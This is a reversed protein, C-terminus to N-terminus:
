LGQQFALAAKYERHATGINQEYMALSAALNKQSLGKNGEQHYTQALLFLTRAKARTPVTWVQQQLALTEELITKAKQPQSSALYFQGLVQKALTHIEVYSAGAKSIEVLEQEQDPKPGQGLAVRIQRLRLLMAEMSKEGHLKHEIEYAKKWTQRAENVQGADEQLIGLRHYLPVFSEKSNLAQKEQWRILDKMAELSSYTEGRSGRLMIELMKPQFAANRIRAEHDLLTYAFQYAGVAQDYRGTNEYIRGLYTKSSAVVRKTNMDKPPLGPELQLIRNFISEAEAYQGALIKLAGLNHLFVAYSMANSLAEPRKQALKDYIAIAKELAGQKVLIIAIRAPLDYECPIDVLKYTHCAAYAEQFLTLAKEKEGWNDYLMGFVHSMEAYARPNKKKNNIIDKAGQQIVTKFRLSDVSQGTIEASGNLLLGTMFKIVAKNKEEEIEAKENALGIQYNKWLVVGMVLVCGLVIAAIGGVFGKNRQVFKRVLYRKSPPQAIIPKQELYRTLDDGVEAVSRYRHKPEKALTKLLISDLDGKLTRYLGEPSTKRAQAVGLVESSVPRSIRESPTKIPDATIRREITALSLDSTIQYPLQGVLVEHMLVGFSYVDTSISIVKRLVQEPSAYAPTLQVHETLTISPELSLWKAIGFDLLKITGDDTVLVNSPKIDRHVVLNQHAHSIVNCVSKLLTIRESITLRHEDCYTTIPKGEVYEMVLFMRGDQLQGVDYLAAINPHHLQGLISTEQEIREKPLFPNRFVKIAVQQRFPVLREGLYVDASGGTGLAPGFTYQSHELRDHDLLKVVSQSELVEIVNPLPQEHAALLAMVEDIVAVDGGSEKRVFSSRASSPLELAQLFLTKILSQM